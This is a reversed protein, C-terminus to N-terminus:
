NDTSLLTYSRNYKLEPNDEMSNCYVKRRVCVKSYDWTGTANPEVTTISNSKKILLADILNLREGLNDEYDGYSNDSSSNNQPCFGLTYTLMVLHQKHGDSSPWYNDSSNEGGKLDRRSMDRLYVYNSSCLKGNCITFCPHDDNSDTLIRPFVENYNTGDLFFNRTTTKFTWSDTTSNYSSLSYFGNTMTKPSQSILTATGNENISYIEEVKFDYYAKNNNYLVTYDHLSTSDNFAKTDMLFKEQYDYCYGDTYDKDYTGASGGFSYKKNVCEFEDDVTDRDIDVCTIASAFLSCKQKACRKDLGTVTGCPKATDANTTLVGNNYLQWPAYYSKASDNNNLPKPSSLRFETATGQAKYKGGSYHIMARNSPFKVGNFNVDRLYLHNIKHSIDIASTSSGKSYSTNSSYIKYISAENGFYLNVPFNGKYNVLM